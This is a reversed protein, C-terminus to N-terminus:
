RSFQDGQTSLFAEYAGLRKGTISSKPLKRRAEKYAELSELVTDHADSGAAYEAAFKDGLRLSEAHLEDNTMQVVGLFLFFPRFFRIIAAM